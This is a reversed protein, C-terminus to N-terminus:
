RRESTEQTLCKTIMVLSIQYEGIVVAMVFNEIENCHRHMSILLFFFVTTDVCSAKMLSIVIVGGPSYATYFVFQITVTTVNSCINCLKLVFRNVSYDFPTFEKEILAM